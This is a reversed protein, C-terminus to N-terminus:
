KAIAEMTITTYHPRLENEFVILSGNDININQAIPTAHLEIYASTFRDSDINLAGLNYYVTNNMYDITGVNYYLSRGDIIQRNFDDGDYPHVSTIDGEKFPGILTLGIDGEKAGTCVYHVNYDYLDEGTNPDIHVPVEFLIETSFVSQEKLENLFNIGNMPSTFYNEEERVLGISTTTGLISVDANDVYGNMKSTYFGKNFIEVQETYYRDISDLVQGQLWEQTQSLDNISYTVNVNKTVYLYKPSHVIPTITAINYQKLFRQIDEKQVTTLYLGSKPKIAIFAYGPKEVDTYCQIAQVINGFQYSVFAEYDSATVARRQTERMIPALERIREIDEEDGGGDAGVYDKDNHINEEVKQFVLNPITGVYDFNKCGNAISGDTQIYEIVVTSGVSPRLGGIYSAKLMGNATINEQGEGFFIETFGDITERMYFVSSAGDIQVIPKNTWDAWQAGNVMVRVHKRDINKDNIVILSDKQFVMQQRIIRGQVLNLATIYQNDIGRIVSVDEWTVFDFFEINQISGTFKTGYPIKINMPSLEPPSYTVTARVVSSAAAKVSPFYGNDQAHQVVSSRLNATRIFSEYLAANSFQQIYLTNYALMDILVSLRSGDFNYDKFEDQNQLFNKLAQQIEPFSAAKFVAPIETANINSAM